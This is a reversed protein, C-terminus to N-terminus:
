IKWIKNKKLGKKNIIQDQIEETFLNIECKKNINLFIWSNNELTILYIRMMYFERKLNGLEKYATGLNNLYSKNSPDLEVLKLMLEM